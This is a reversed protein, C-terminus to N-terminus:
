IQAIFSALLKQSVAEFDPKEVLESLQTVKLGQYGCPDINAFPSLDMDVNLSLGHYTNGRTIRLGLAAIKASNVYVGPADEKIQGAVGYAKLVSLVSRELVSVLSKVGLQYRKLRLLPYMVVQGLGHYTIQGGRDTKYIPIDSEILTHQTCSTGQTYCSPHQLIWIQDRVSDGRTRAFERMEQWCGLYPVTKFVKLEIEQGSASVIVSQSQSEM